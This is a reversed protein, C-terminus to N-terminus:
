CAILGRHISHMLVFSVISTPPPLHPQPLRGSAVHASPPRPKHYADKTEDDYDGYENPLPSGVAVGGSVKVRRRATEESMYHLPLQQHQETWRYNATPYPIPEYHNPFDTDSGIDVAIAAPKM